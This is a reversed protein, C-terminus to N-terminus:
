MGTPSSNETSKLAGMVCYRGEFVLSNSITYDLLSVKYFITQTADNYMFYLYDDVIHSTHSQMIKDKVPTSGLSLHKILKNDLPNKVNYFSKFTDYHNTIILTDHHFVFHGAGKGAKFTDVLSLDSSDLVFVNGEYSGVYLHKNDHHFAFHHFGWTSANFDSPLNQFTDMLKETVDEFKEFAIKFKIIGPSTKGREGELTGYFYDGNKVVHHVGSSTELKAIPNTNGITYLEMASQTRDLLLFYSDNIWFPHGTANTGGYSTPIVYSSDSYITSTKDLILAAPANSSSVLVAKQNPNLAISRPSFALEVQAKVKDDNIRGINSDRRNLILLEEDYGSAVEYPYTGTSKLVFRLQMSKIDINLIEDNAIDGYYINRDIDAELVGSGMGGSGGCAMFITTALLYFM